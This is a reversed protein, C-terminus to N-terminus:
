VPLRSQYVIRDIGSEELYKESPAETKYFIANGQAYFPVPLTGGDLRLLYRHCEKKCAAYSLTLKGCMRTTTVYGYPLHISVGIKRDVKIDMEWALNDIEVRNVGQSLLYEQFVPLNIVSAQYHKFLEPPAKRAFLITKAKKDPSTVERYGQRGSFIRAMRPDRRQKTLLRGLVPRLHPYQDKIARLVGWDNFVVEVSHRGDLFDLLCELKRMGTNTVYPTVFTFPKGRARAACYVRKLVSIDPLLNECFENGYYVRDAAKEIDEAGNIALAKEIKNSM